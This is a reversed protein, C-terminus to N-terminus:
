VYSLAIEKRIRTILELSEKYNIYMRTSIECYCDVCIPDKTGQVMIKNNKKCVPCRAVVIEISTIEM